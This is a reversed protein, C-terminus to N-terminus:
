LKRELLFQLIDQWLDKPNRFKVIKKSKNLYGDLIDNPDGSFNTIIFNFFELILLFNSKVCTTNNVYFTKVPIDVFKNKTKTCKIMVEAPKRQKCHHCFEYDVSVKKAIEVSERRPVKVINKTNNKKLKEKKRSILTSNQTEEDEEKEEKKGCKNIKPRGRKRKIIEQSKAEKNTSSGNNYYSHIKEQFLDYVSISNLPDRFTLLKKYDEENLSLNEIGEAEEFILLYKKNKVDIKINWISEAFQKTQLTFIQNALNECKNIYFDKSNIDVKPLFEPLKSKNEFNKLMLYNNEEVSNLKEQIMQIEEDIDRSNINNILYDFNDIYVNM